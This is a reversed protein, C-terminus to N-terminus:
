SLAQRQTLDGLNSKVQLIVTDLHLNIVTMIKLDTPRFLPKGFSYYEVIFSLLILHELM